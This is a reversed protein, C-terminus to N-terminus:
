ATGAKQTKKTFRKWLPDNRVEEQMRKVWEDLGIEAIEKDIENRIERMMKVCDFKKEM